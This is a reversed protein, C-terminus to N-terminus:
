PKRHRAIIADVRSKADSKIDADLDARADDPLRDLSHAPDDALIEAKTKPADPKGEKSATGGEKSPWFLRLLAVIGVIGGLGGAGALGRLIGARAAPLGAAIIVLAMVLGVAAAIVYGLAKKLWATM